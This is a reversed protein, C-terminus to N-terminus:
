NELSPPEIILRITSAAVYISVLATHVIPLPEIALLMSTADKSAVIATLILPLKRLPESMSKAGQFHSIAVEIFTIPNM